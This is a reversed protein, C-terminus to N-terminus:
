TSSIFKDMLNKPDGKVKVKKIRSGGGREIEVQSTKVGLWESLLKVCEKNARGRVPPATVKVKLHEGQFGVVESCSAKPQVKVKFRIGDQIKEVKV